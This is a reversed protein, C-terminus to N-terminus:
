DYIFDRLHKEYEAYRQYKRKLYERSETNHKNQDFSLCKEVYERMLRPMLMRNRLCSEIYLGDQLKDLHNKMIYDCIVSALFESYQLTAENALNHNCKTLGTAKFVLEKVILDAPESFHWLGHEFVKTRDICFVCKVPNRDKILQIQELDKTFSM